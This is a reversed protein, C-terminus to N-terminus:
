MMGLDGAICGSMHHKFPWTSDIKLTVNKRRRQSYQVKIVAETIKDTFLMVEHLSSAAFQLHNTMEVFLMM